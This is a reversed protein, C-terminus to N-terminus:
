IVQITLLCATLYITYIWFDTSLIRPVPEIENDKCWFLSLAYVNLSLVFCVHLALTVYFFSLLSRWKLYLFSQVLPHLLLRDQGYRNGTNNLAKIVAMHKKDPNPFLVRYDVEVESNSDQGKSTIYSDFIEQLFETPKSVNNMLLDIPVLNRDHRFYFSENVNARGALDAGHRLLLKIMEKNGHSCAEHLPSRGAVIAHVTAKDHRIIMEAIEHHNTIAAIHLLSTKQIGNNKCNINSCDMLNIKAGKTILLRACEPQNYVLAYYLPPGFCDSVNILKMPNTKKYSYDILYELIDRNGLKAALHLVNTKSTEGSRPNYTQQNYSRYIARNHSTCENTLPNDELLIKRNCFKATICDIHSEENAQM